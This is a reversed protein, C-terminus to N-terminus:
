VFIEKIKEFVDKATISKMCDSPSNKYFCNENWSDSFDRCWHPCNGKKINTNNELAFYEMPEPGWLVISPKTTLISRFHVFSNETDIHLTSKGLIYKLDSISARGTLNIKVGEISDMEVEGVQIVDYNPYYKKILIVLSNWEFWKGVASQRLSNECGNTRITIFPNEGIKCYDLFDSKRSIPISFDYHNKKIDLLNGIDLSNIFNRGNLHSYIFINPNYQKHNDYFFERTSVSDKFETYTSIIKKINFDDVSNHMEIKPIYGLRLVLNYNDSHNIVSKLYINNFVNAPKIIEENIEDSWASYLDIKANNLYSKLKKAYNIHMILMSLSNSASIFALKISNNYEM